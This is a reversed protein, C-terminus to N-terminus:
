MTPRRLHVASMLLVVGLLLACPRVDAANVTGSCLSIRGQRNRCCPDLIGGVHRLVVHHLRICSQVHECRVIVCHGISLGFADTIRRARVQLVVAMDIVLNKVAGAVLGVVSSASASSGVDM